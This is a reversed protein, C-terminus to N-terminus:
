TIRYTSNSTNWDNPEQSEDVNANTNVFDGLQVISQARAVTLAPRENEFAVFNDRSNFTANRFASNLKSSKALNFRPTSTLKTKVALLAQLVSPHITVPGTSSLGIIGSTPALADLLEDLWEGLRVGCVMPESETNATVATTNYAELAASTIDTIDLNSPSSLIDILSAGLAITDVPRPASGIYIKKSLMSIAADANVNVTGLANITYTLGAVNDIKVLAKNNISLNATLTISKDTDISVQGRGNLYIESKSFLMIDKVKSNLVVRDSNIIIQSKDYKQPPFNMSRIFSKTGKLTAPEFPVVQDSTMWISSADKNVDELVLGFVTTISSAENEINKGQGARIIVNPALSDSSPDMRSSGFRISNGMRGQLVTDGEFHKLSRVRSDPKFYEGFQHGENSIEVQTTAATSLQNASPNNLVKNLGLMGNEQLRRAIAVKSSYFYNGRIKHIMVLEGILPYQLISNDLPDAYPLQSDDVTNNVDFIRVKIAGVNSGDVKSYEPHTHDLIVDVVLGEYIAPLVGRANDSTGTLYTNASPRRYIVRDSM